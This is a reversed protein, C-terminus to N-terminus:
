TIFLFAFRFALSSLTPFACNLLKTQHKITTIDESWSGLSKAFAGCRLQFYVHLLSVLFIFLPAFHIFRHALIPAFTLKQETILEQTMINAQCQTFSFITSLELHSHFKRGRCRQSNTRVFWRYPPRNRGIVRFDQLKTKKVRQWSVTMKTVLAIFMTVRVTQM